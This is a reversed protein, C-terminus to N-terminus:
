VRLALEMFPNSVTPPRTCIGVVTDVSEAPTQLLGRTGSGVSGCYLPDGFTVVGVIAADYGDADVEVVGMGMVYPAKGSGVASSSEFPNGAAPNIALGLPEQTDGDCLELLGSADQALVSGGLISAIASPKVDQLSNRHGVYLIKLTM